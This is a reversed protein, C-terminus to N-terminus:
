IPHPTSTLLQVPGWELEVAGTVTLFSETCMLLFPLPTRVIGTMKLQGISAKAEQAHQCLSLAGSSCGGILLWPMM